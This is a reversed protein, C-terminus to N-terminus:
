VVDLVLVVTDSMGAIFTIVGAGGLGRELLVLLDLVLPFRVM